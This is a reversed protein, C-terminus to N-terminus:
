DAWSLDNLDEALSRSRTSRKRAPNKGEEHGNDTDPALRHQRAWQHKAYQLFKSNWSSSVEGRERWYLVFEPVLQRAFEVDINALGLIDYVDGLPQWVTSIASPEGDQRLTQTCRQWQRKVHSVFRSNWTKGLDGRESWYLVFEPVADYSFDEPIEGKALIDIADESPQWDRQVASPLDVTVQFGTEQERWRRMVQSRFKSGWSFASDGRERWYAIFEAIQDLAFQRPVQNMELQRLIQEDPQWSPAILSKGGGYRAETGRPAPQSPKTGPENIACRFRDAESLPASDILLVGKDRLNTAIRQCDQSQWFPFLALLQEVDIELWRFGDRTTQGRLSILEHLTQVM